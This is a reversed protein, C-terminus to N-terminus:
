ESILNITGSFSGDPGTLMYFYTGNPLLEGSLSHGDWGSTLPTSTYFILMGWRNYISLEDFENCEPTAQIRFIDNIGDQNPSFVNPIIFENGFDLNFSDTVACGNNDIVIKFEGIESTIIEYGEIGTSNNPTFWTYTYAENEASLPRLTIEPVCSFTDQRPNLTPTQTVFVTDYLTDIYSLNGCPYVAQLEIPYFGSEIYGYDFVQNTDTTGDGLKWSWQEVDRSTIGTFRFPDNECVRKNTDVPAVTLSNITPRFEVHISDPSQCRANFVTVVYTDTTDVTIRDATDGTNWLYSLATSDAFLRFTDELCIVTDEGLDFVPLPVVFVSDQVTDTRCQSTIIVDIFYVGGSDFAHIPNPLNSTTGDGLNWEFLFPNGIADVSFEISDFQCITDSNASINSFEVGGELNTLRVGAAYSYSEAFGLGISYALFGCGGTFLNHSGTDISVATHAYTSDGNLVEFGTVPVGDLVITNTDNTRTIIVVNNLAIAVESVAFFTISDLFMQENPNIIVMSPDGETINSCTAFGNSVMFQGVSIRNNSSILRAVQHTDQYFEGSNLTTMLVGDKFVETSDEEAVVRFLDAGVGPTPVLIYERGWSTVPFMAEYLPDLTTGCFVQSWENGGFVAIRADPDICRVRSGTLDDMSDGQVQYLDGSDLTVTYPVNALNGGRTNGSPTIEVTVSEGPAAIMFESRWPGPNIAGNVNFNAMVPYSTMVYYESGLARNPLILSAESRFAHYTNAYVVCGDDCRVHIARPDLSDSTFIWALSDPITIKTVSNPTVSFTRFFNSGPVEIIGTTNFRSSINAQFVITTDQPIAVTSQGDVPETFGFWFDNGENTISQSLGIHQALIICGFLAVSLRLQTTLNVIRSVPQM